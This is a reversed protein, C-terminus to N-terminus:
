EWVIVLLAVRVFLASSSSGSSGSSSSGTSSSSNSNLPVNGLRSVVVFSSSHSNYLVSFSCGRQCTELPFRWHCSPTFQSACQPTQDAPVDTGGLPKGKSDVCFCDVKRRTDVDESCQKPAFRGDPLCQSFTLKVASTGGSRRARNLFLSLKANSMLVDQMAKRRRCPTM